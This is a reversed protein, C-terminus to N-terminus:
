LLNNSVFILGVGEVSDSDRNVSRLIRNFGVAVAILIVLIRVSRGRKVCPKIRNGYGFRNCGIGIGNDFILFRVGINLNRNGGVAGIRRRKRKMLVLASRGCVNRNLGSGVCHGGFHLQGICVAIRYGSGCAFVKSQGHQRSLIQIDDTEVM